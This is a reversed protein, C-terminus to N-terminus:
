EHAEGNTIFGHWKCGEMRQISPRLTLSDISDGTREWHSSLGHAPGGDLPNSFPVFCRVDCGCPCEFGLGVGKREPVPQGNVDTIGEGGADVFSANLERLTRMV